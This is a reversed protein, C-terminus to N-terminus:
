SPSTSTACKNRYTHLLTVLNNVIAEKTVKAGRVFVRSVERKIMFQSLGEQDAAKFYTTLNKAIPLNMNFIRIRREGFVTTYLM